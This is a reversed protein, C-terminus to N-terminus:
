ISLEDRIWLTLWQELSDSQPTLGYGGHEMPGVRFVQGSSVDLCSEVADGWECLSLMQFPWQGPALRLLRNSGYLEWQERFDELRM